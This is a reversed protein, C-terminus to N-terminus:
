CAPSAGDGAPTRARQSHTSGATQVSRISVARSAPNFPPLHNLSISLTYASGLRRRAKVRTFAFQYRPDLRLDGVSPHQLQQFRVQRLSNQLLHVEPRRFRSRGLARHHRGSRLLYSEIQGRSENEAPPYFFM